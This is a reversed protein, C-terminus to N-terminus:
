IFIALTFDLVVPHYYNNYSVTKCMDSRLVVQSSFILIPQGCLKRPIISYTLTGGFLRNQRLKSCLIFAKIIRRMDKRYITISNIMECCGM